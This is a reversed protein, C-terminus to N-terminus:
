SRNRALESLGDLTLLSRFGVMDIQLLIGLDRALSLADPLRNLAGSLVV